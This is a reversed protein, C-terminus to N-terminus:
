NIELKHFKCRETHLPSSLFLASHYIKNTDGWRKKLVFSYIGRKKFQFLSDLNITNIFYKLEKKHAFLNWISSHAITCKNIM